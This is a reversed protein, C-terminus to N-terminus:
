PLEARAPTCHLEVPVSPLLHKEDDYSMFSEQSSNKSAVSELKSARKLIFFFLGAGLTFLAIATGIGVGLGITLDMNNDEPPNTIPADTTSTCPTLSTTDIPSFVEYSITTIAIAISPEIELPISAIIRVPEMTFVEDEKCDCGKSGFCCFQGVGCAKVGNGSVNFCQTPCTPDDWDEVLCGNIFYPTLATKDSTVCLGNSACSDGRSCCSKFVGTPDCPVLDVNENNSRDLCALM